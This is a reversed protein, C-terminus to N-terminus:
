CWKDVVFFDTPNKAQSQWLEKTLKPVLGMPSKLGLPEESWPRLLRWKSNLGKKRLKAVLMSITDPLM